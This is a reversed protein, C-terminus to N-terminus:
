FGYRTLDEETILGDAFKKQIREKISYNALVSEFTESTVYPNYKVSLNRIEEPSFPMNKLWQEEYAKYQEAPLVLIPVNFVPAQGNKDKIANGELFNHLLATALGSNIWHAGNAAAITGADLGVLIEPDLDTVFLVADVEPHNQLVEMSGVGVDGSSSYIIEVDPHAVLMDETKVLAESRTTCEWGVDIVRGGDQEFADTFGKVRAEHTTDGRKATIIVAKKRGTDSAYQGIPFGADYDNEGVAGVFYPNQRLIALTEETPLHDYLVFPVKADACKKGVVPFIADSIGFFVIGNVGSAILNEVNSVSKEIKAEDNVSIMEIDLAEASYVAFNELIDLCYIGSLFNNIGFKYDAALTTFTLSLVLLVSLGLIFFKRM